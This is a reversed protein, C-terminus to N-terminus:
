NLEVLSAFIEDALEFPTDALSANVVMAITIQQGNHDPYHRAYTTDGPGGGGHGYNIWQPDIKM